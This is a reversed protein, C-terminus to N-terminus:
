AADVPTVSQERDSRIREALEAVQTDTGYPLAARAALEPTLDDRRHLGALYAEVGATLWPEPIREAPPTALPIVESATM